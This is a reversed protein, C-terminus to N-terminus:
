KQAIYDAFTGSFAGAANSAYYGLMDSADALDVKGDQNGDAAQANVGTVAPEAGAAESAYLGLAASADALNVSGDADVDGYSNKLSRAMISENLAANVGSLTQEAGSGTYAARMLTGNERGDEAHQMSSIVTEAIVLHGISNPHVDVNHIGTYYFARDYLAQYSDAITVGQLGRITDNIGVGYVTNGDLGELYKKVYTSLMEMSGSVALDTSDADADLDMPNYVTQFVIEASSNLSRLQSAIQEINSSCTAIADPMTSDLYFNLFTGALDGQARMAAILEAMTSHQTADIYDNNLVPQMIDNGGITILIVDAGAVTQQVNPDSLKELLESSTAGDEALNVLEANYYSSVIDAYSAILTGDKSYGTSISDGLAVIVDSEAADATVPAAVSNATMAALTLFAAMSGFYKKKM